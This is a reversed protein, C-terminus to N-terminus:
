KGSTIRHLYNRRKLDEILITNFKEVGTQNLHHADYFDTLTNFGPYNFYDLYDVRYASAIAVLKHSFARHENQNWESPAPHTVLMVPIRQKNFYQLTKELYRWQITNAPKKVHYVMRGPFKLSDLTESYGNIIYQKDTYVPGNSSNLFRVALMNLIRPDKLALGMGIVTKTSGLNQMLDATSELGDSTFAEDYVDLIVLRCHYPKIYDVALYYTNLPTQGSTGLNFLEVGSKKFIRPDYGRYAHSSGIVLVDYTKSTDFDSFKRYTNGGKQVIGDSVGYILAESNSKVILLFCILLTYCALSCVLFALSRILFKKVKM